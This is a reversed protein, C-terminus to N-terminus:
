VIEIMLAPKSGSLLLDSWILLVLRVCSSEDLFLAPKVCVTRYEPATQAGVTIDIFVFEYKVDNAELLALVARTPPSSPHGYVKLVTSAATASMDALHAPPATCVETTTSRRRSNKSDSSSPPPTGRVTNMCSRLLIVLLDLQFLECIRLATM